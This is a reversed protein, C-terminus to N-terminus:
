VIGSTKNSGCISSLKENEIDKKHITFAREYACLSCVLYFILYGDTTEEPKIDLLYFIKEQHCKPCVLKKTPISLNEFYKSLRMEKAFTQFNKM